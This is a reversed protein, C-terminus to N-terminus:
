EVDLGKAQRGERTKAKYHVRRIKDLHFSRSTKYGSPGGVVDVWESGTKPNFIHKIFIFRGREGKISLETGRAVKRGHVTIEESVVWHASPSPVAPVNSESKKKHGM